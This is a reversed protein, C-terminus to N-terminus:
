KLISEDFNGIINNYFTDYYSEKGGSTANIKIDDFVFFIMCKRDNSSAEFGYNEKICYTPDKVSLDFNTENNNEEKKIDSLKSFKSVRLNSIRFSLPKNDDEVNFQYQKGFEYYMAILSFNKIKLKKLFNIDNHLIKQFDPLNTLNLKFESDLVVQDDKIFFSIRNKSSSILKKEWPTIKVMQWYNFYDEPVNDIIKNKSLIITFDKFENIEIKFVGLIFPLFSGNNKRMYKIYNLLFNQQRNYQYPIVEIIFQNDFTKFILDKQITFNNNKVNALIFSM